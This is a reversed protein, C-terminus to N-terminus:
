QLGRPSLKITFTWNNGDWSKSVIQIIEDEFSFDADTLSLIDGIEIWGFSPAATYEVFTEPFAKYRIIDSAILAATDVDTVFQSQLVKERSGYKNFSAVAIQNNFINSSYFKTDGTIRLRCKYTGQKLEYCYSVTVDNILSSSDGRQQLASSASFEPSALISCVPSPKIGTAYLDLIPRMGRRGQVVSIPLLPIIETELFEIASIEQDNIYGAIKYSNLFPRISEWALYDVEQGGQELCWLCIDGAGTIEENSSPSILGGGDFWSCFYRSSEDDVPNQFSGSSHTFHVFSFIRGDARVWEEVDEVRFNGLDDYIRVRDAKVAHPAIALWINNSSGHEAYLVYAPSAPYVDFTSNDNLFVGASGFIIPLVKEKHTDLLELIFDANQIASLPSLTPNVLDSLESPSIRALQGMSSAHLSTELVPSEISAEFYGRFRDRHAIVPEKILGKVLLVRNDYNEPEGAENVLIYSLEAEANELSNGQQYQLALDINHLYCAVPTSYSSVNFGLASLSSSFEPDETLGGNLQIIGESSSLLLPKTSSYYIKGNWNIRLIFVPHAGKWASRTKRGQIM